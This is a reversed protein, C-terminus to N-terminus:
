NSATDNKLVRTLAKQYYNNPIACHGVSGTTLVVPKNLVLSSKLLRSGGSTSSGELFVSELAMNKSGRAIAKWNELRAPVGYTADQLMISRVTPITSSAAILMDPIITGAGSHGSIYWGTGEAPQTIKKTWESFAKFHGVLQVRYDTNQGYSVPFVLISNTAKAEAIAATFQDILNFNQLTELATFNTDVKGDSARHCVGRFGQIHLMLRTPHVIPSATRPIVFAIARTYDFAPTQSHVSDFTCVDANPLSKCTAISSYDAKIRELLPREDAHAFPTLATLLLFAVVSKM